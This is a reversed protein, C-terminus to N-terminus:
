NRGPCYDAVVALPVETVGHAYRGTTIRGAVSWTESVSDWALIEDLNGEAEMDVGGSVLLLQGLKAARLDTRGTPLRSAARWSDAGGPYSSYPFVETTDLWDTDSSWPHRFTGGTVLLM